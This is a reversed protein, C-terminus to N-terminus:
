ICSKFLSIINNKSIECARRTFSDTMHVATYSTEKNQVDLAKKVASSWFGTKTNEKGGSSWSKLFAEWRRRGKWFSLVTACFIWKGGVCIIIFHIHFQLNRVIWGISIHISPKCDTPNCVFGVITLAHLTKTYKSFYFLSASPKLLIM